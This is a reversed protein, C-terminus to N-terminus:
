GVRGASDVLAPILVVGERLEQRAQDFWPMPVRDSAPLLRSLITETDNAGCIAAVCAKARSPTYSCGAFHLFSPSVGRLTPVAEIIHPGVERQLWGVLRVREAHNQLLHYILPGQDQTGGFKGLTTERGYLKLAGTVVSSANARVLLVGAQLAKDGIRHVHWKIRVSSLPVGELGSWYRAPTSRLLEIGPQLWVDVEPQLKAIARAREVVSADREASPVTDADHWLLLGHSSRNRAAAEIAVLKKWSGRFEAHSNLPLTELDFTSVAGRSSRVLRSVSAHRTAEICDDFGRAYDSGSLPQFVAGSILTLPLPRTSNRDTRRQKITPSTSAAQRGYASFSPIPPPPSRAGPITTAAKIQNNIMTSVYVGGLIATGFFLLRSFLCLGNAPLPM